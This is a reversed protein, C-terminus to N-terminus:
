PCVNTQTYLRIFSGLVSMLTVEDYVIYLMTHEFLCCPLAECAFFIHKLPFFYHFVFISSSALHGQADLRSGEDPFPLCRPLM